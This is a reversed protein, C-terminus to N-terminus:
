KFQTMFIRNNVYAFLLPWVLKCTQATEDVDNSNAIKIIYFRNQDRRTHPGNIKKESGTSFYLGSTEERCENQLEFCILFSSSSDRIIGKLKCHCSVLCQCLSISYILFLILFSFCSAKYTLHLTAKTDM